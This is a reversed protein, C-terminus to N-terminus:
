IAICRWRRVLFRIGLPILLIQGGVMFEAAEPHEFYYAALMMIALKVSDPVNDGTWSGFKARITVARYQDRTGPWSQNHGLYIRPLKRDDDKDEIINSTSFTTSAGASDIYTISTVSVLNGFPLEIYDRTPFDDLTIDWTEEIFRRGMYEQLAEIAAGLNTLIQANQVEHFIRQHLKVEQLTVLEVSSNAETVLKSRARSSNRRWLEPQTM